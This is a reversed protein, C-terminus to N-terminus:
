RLPGAAAPAEPDGRGPAPVGGGPGSPAAPTAPGPTTFADAVEGPEHVRFGLRKEQSAKPDFVVRRVSEYPIFVLAVEGPADDEDVVELSVWGDAAALVRRVLYERGEHNTLRVQPAPAPMGATYHGIAVPLATAFFEKDFV